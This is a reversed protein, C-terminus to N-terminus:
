KNAQNTQDIYSKILNMTQDSFNIPYYAIREGGIFINKFDSYSEEVMVDGNYAITINWVYGKELGLYNSYYDEYEFSLTYYDNFHKLRLFNFVDTSLVNKIKKSKLENMILEIDESAKIEIDNDEEIGFQLDPQNFYNGDSVKSVLMTEPTVLNKLTLERPASISISILSYLSISLTIISFVSSFLVIIGNYKKGKQKREEIQTLASTFFAGFIIIYLSAVGIYYTYKLDYNKTAFIRYICILFILLLTFFIFLNALNDEIKNVFKNRGRSYKSDDGSNDIM